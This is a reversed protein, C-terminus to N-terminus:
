SNIYNECAQYTGIFKSRGNSDRVEYADATAPCYSGYSGVPYDGMMKGTFNIRFKPQVM